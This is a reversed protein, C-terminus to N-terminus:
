RGDADYCDRGANRRSTSVDNRLPCYWWLMPENHIRSYRLGQQYNLPYRECNSTVVLQAWQWSPDTILDKKSLPLLSMLIKKTIPNKETSRIAAMRRNHQPDDSRHQKTPNCRQFLKFTNVALTRLLDLKIGMSARCLDRFLSVSGQGTPPLQYFDGLFVVHRGGFAKKSEESGDPQALRLRESVTAMFTSHMMSVEDIVLLQVQGLVDRIKQINKPKLFVYEKFFINMDAAKHLTMGGKITAANGTPALFVSRLGRNTAAERIMDSLHTKGCGPPGHVLLFVQDGTDFKRCCTEFAKMQDESDPGLKKKILDDLRKM